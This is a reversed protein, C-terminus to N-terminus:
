RRAATSKLTTGLRVLLTAARAAFALAALVSAVAKLVGATGGSLDWVWTPAVVAFYVLAALLAGSVAAYSIEVTVADRRARPDAAM